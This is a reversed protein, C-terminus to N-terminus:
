GIGRMPNFSSQDRRLVGTPISKQATIRSEPDLDAVAMSPGPEAGALVEGWPSIIMSQGGAPRGAGDIGDQNAAVLHCGNEIARARCLVEWHSQTTERTFAAPLVFVEAGAAALNTFLEPFRLDFCIAMGIVTGDAAESLVPTAGPAFADSERYSRGAVQADFLHIKRYVAKMQGDPGFHVSTNSLRDSGAVREAFSGAVLDIGLEDSLSAALQMAPGDIPEAGALTTEDDALLPWKEPLVVLDAGAAVASRVGTEAAALNATRDAASQLQIAAARISTFGVVPRRMGPHM